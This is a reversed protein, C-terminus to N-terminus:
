VVSVDEVASGGEGKSELGGESAPLVWPAATPYEDPVVKGGEGNSVVAGFGEDVAGRGGVCPAEVAV